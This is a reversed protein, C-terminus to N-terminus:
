KFKYGTALIVDDIGADHSGDAYVITWDVHTRTSSRAAAFDNHVCINLARREKAMAFWVEHEFLKKEGMVYVSEKTGLKTV